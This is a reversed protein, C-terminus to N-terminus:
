TVALSATYKVHELRRMLISSFNPDYSHYIMDGYDLHPRLYLEYMQDLVDRPVYQSLYRILGIGRRAKMIPESVHSKSSIKPDLIM